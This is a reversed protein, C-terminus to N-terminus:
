MALMTQKDLQYNSGLRKEILALPSIPHCYDNIQSANSLKLTPHFSRPTFHIQPSIFTPHFSGPTFYIHPSSIHHSIIHPSIFTPHFSVLGSFCTQWKWSFEVYTKSISSKLKFYREIFLKFKRVKSLDVSLSQFRSFANLHQIIRNTVHLSSM